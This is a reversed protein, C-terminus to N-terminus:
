RRSLISPHTPLEGQPRSKVEPENRPAELVLETVFDYKAGCYKCTVAPRAVLSLVNIDGDRGCSPCRVAIGMPEDM